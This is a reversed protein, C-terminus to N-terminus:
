GQLDRGSADPRAQYYRARVRRHLIEGQELWGWAPLLRPRKLPTVVLLAPALRSLAYSFAPLRSEELLHLAFSCVILSYHRGALAGWAIQEFSYPVAQLGTRALYAASTYPDVGEVVGSREHLALTVEGSGCALDLVRSLDPQWSALAMDLVERLIAEHPNRYDAGHRQYFAAPGEREYGARIAEEGRATGRGSLDRPM